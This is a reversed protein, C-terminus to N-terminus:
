TRGFRRFISPERALHLSERRVSRKRRKEELYAFFSSAGRQSARPSSSQGRDRSLRADQRRGTRRFIYLRCKCALNFPISLPVTRPFPLCISKSIAAPFCPASRLPSPCPNPSARVVFSAQSSALWSLVHYRGAATARPMQCNNLNGEPPPPPPPPDMQFDDRIM